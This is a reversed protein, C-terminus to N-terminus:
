EGIASLYLDMLEEQERRDSEKMKRLKIIQRIIKVDFGTGKAESYVDKIDELVASKDEELKEVRKIFSRLREGSVPNDPSNDFPARMKQAAKDCIAGLKEDDQTNDKATTKKSM